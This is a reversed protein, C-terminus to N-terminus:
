FYTSLIEGGSLKREFLCMSCYSVVEKMSEYVFKGIVKTAYGWTITHNSGDQIDKTNYVANKHYFWENM